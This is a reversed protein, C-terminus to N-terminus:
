SAPCAAPFFYIIAWFSHCECRTCLSSYVFLRAYGREHRTCLGQLRCRFSFALSFSPFFFFSNADGGEGVKVSSPENQAAPRRFKGFDVNGLLPGSLHTVPSVTYGVIRSARRGRPWGGSECMYKRPLQAIKPLSWAYVSVSVPGGKRFQLLTSM